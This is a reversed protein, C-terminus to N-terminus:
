TETIIVALSINIGQSSLHLLVHKSTHLKPMAVESVQILVFRLICDILLTDFENKEFFYVIIRLWSLFHLLITQYAKTVDRVTVQSDEFLNWVIICIINFTRWTCLFNDLNIFSNIFSIVLNAYLHSFNQILCFTDSKYLKFILSLLM